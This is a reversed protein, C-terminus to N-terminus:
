AKFCHDECHAGTYMFNKKSHVSFITFHFLIKQIVSIKDKESIYTKKYSLNATILVIRTCKSVCLM